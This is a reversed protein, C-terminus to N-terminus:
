PLNLLQGPRKRGLARLGIFIMAFYIVLVGVLLWKLMLPEISYRGALLWVVDALDTGSEAQMGQVPVILAHFVQVVADLLFVGLALQWLWRFRSFKAAPYFLLLAVFQTALLGGLPVLLRCGFPLGAAHYSNCGICWSGNPRLEFLRYYASVDGCCRAVLTHGLEHVNIMTFVVILVAFIVATAKLVAKMFRCVDYRM